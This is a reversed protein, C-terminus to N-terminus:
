PRESEDEVSGAATAAEEETFGHMLKKTADLTTEHSQQTLHSSPQSPPVSKTTHQFTSIELRSSALKLLTLM